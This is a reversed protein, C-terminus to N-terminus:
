ESPKAFFVHLLVHSSTSVSSAEMEAKMGNEEMSSTCCDGHDM